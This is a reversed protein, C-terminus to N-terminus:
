RLSRRLADLASQVKKSADDVKKTLDKLEIQTKEHCRYHRGVTWNGDDDYGDALTYRGQEEIDPFLPKNCRDCIPNDAL